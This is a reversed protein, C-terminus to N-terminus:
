EEEEIEISVVNAETRETPLTYLINRIEARLSDVTYIGMLGNNYSPDLRILIAVYDAKTFTAGGRKTQMSVMDNFVVHQRVSSSVHTPEGPGTLRKRQANGM